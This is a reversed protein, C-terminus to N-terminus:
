TWAKKSVREKVGPNKVLGLSQLKLLLKSMDLKIEETPADARVHFAMHWTKGDAVRVFFANLIKGKESYWTSGDNPYSNVKFPIPDALYSMVRHLFASDLISSIPDGFSPILVGSDASILGYELDVFTPSLDSYRFYSKVWQDEVRYIAKNALEPNLAKISFKDGLTLMKHVSAETGEKQTEFQEFLSIIQDTTTSRLSEGVRDLVLLASLEDVSAGFPCRSLLSLVRRDYDTLSDLFSAYERTGRLQGIAQELAEIDLRLYLTGVDGDWELRKSALDYAFYSLLNFDLPVRGSLEIARPIFGHMRVDLHIGRSLLQTKAIGVTKTIAKEVDTNTPFPGLDIKRFFRPIPSFVESVESLLRSTGAIVLGMGRLDQFVNRLVQLLVRNQTLEDGEDFMLVAGSNRGSEQPKLVRLLDRLGDRLMAYPLAVFQEGQAARAVVGIGFASFEVSDFKIIGQLIQKVKTATEKAILNAEEAANTLDDLILKFFRPEGDEKVMGQDLSIKATAVKIERLRKELENLFSSKGTGRGGLVLVGGTGGNLIQECVVVADELELERDFFLERSTIAGQYQFPNARRVIASKTPLASM